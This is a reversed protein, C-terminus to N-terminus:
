TYKAVTELALLASGAVFPIEDGPFDYKALLEQVELQVLELLEEDDVM